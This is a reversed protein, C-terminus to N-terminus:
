KNDILDKETKQNKKEIREKNEKAISKAESSFKHKVTLVTVLGIVVGFIGQVDNFLMAAAAAEYGYIVLEYVFYGMVMIIEALIYAILCRGFKYKNNIYAVAIFGMFAKIFFTAPAYIFYGSLIDALASGIAAAAIGYYGFLATALFIFGDGIHIYGIPTPFKIFATAICIVAAMLGSFALLQTKSFKRNNLINIHNDNISEKKQAM